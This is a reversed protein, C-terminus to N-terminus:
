FTQGISFFFQLHNVRQNSPVCAGTPNPDTASCGRLDVATGKFGQYAPPNISYALDVRLPGVPTKYRLGFGAAHAMYDFDQMNRQHFRFSVNGASSFVNGMDHFFVGNINSGILPFRLEVNNYFLANGGLPFGTPASAPGGPTIPTGTDRPGAQNYPFARLTDAGGGFFREPLPVSEQRSIGAPPSFPAIIGFQTQRALVITRTIRHYTANRALLRGFSRQSGFITTAAGFDLTNYIGRHPDTPDDRRDQSWNATLIGIRVPQQLQPVLLVPIVVDGVSVRRYAFRIQGTVARSFRQSVQVSAEARRSRFTLVSLSDDYLLTYTATRSPEHFFRPILYTLSARKQLTSFLGHLGITHGVGLFNIRNVDLSVLPSFGTSGGPATVNGSSPNGFRGAQGGFGIGLTYRSAEEFNYIVYKHDSEGDPNQIATDVRAFIGLDYLDKQSDTQAVPSLPDGPKLKINQDVLRRRTNKLGSILVGRVFKRDGEHVAYTINVHNPTGSPEWSAKFTADPFGQEYYHTLVHNRDSGLNVEAFPQGAVSALDSAMSNRDMSRIGEINLNDVMWQPGEDITVTVALQGTKGQYALDLAFNVQVDRFGNSQYLNSINDRDKREFAESYRGSRLTFSAPEIYMRERLTQETFYKHGVLIVKVVKYKQGRDIVYEITDLDAQSSVRRFAVDVDIYGLSQFYASLNRQGEALLDNDVTHEEFVPVYRQLVSKSVKTEVAKVEVRPGPDVSITPKVRRTSADYDLKQLEVKAELRDKKQYASRIGGVGTRTRLATVQRWWHIIPLRWGTAKLITSNPLKTEGQIVPESYLARKNGKVHFTLFIQQAQDDRTIEPTLEAEYLGNSKLLEGIADGANKVDEDRVPTGLTLQATSAIQARNPPSPIKGDVNLGGLFWTVKTVFKVSVGDGSPEVEVVIDEFRGTSFLNDIATAIDEARYADGAKFPIISVADAPDLPQAPEFQIQVVKKNQFPSIQGSCTAAFLILANLVRPTM